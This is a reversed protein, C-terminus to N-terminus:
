AADAEPSLFSSRTCPVPGAFGVLVDAVRRQFRPHSLLCLLFDHTKRGGHTSGVFVFQHDEFPAAVRDAV